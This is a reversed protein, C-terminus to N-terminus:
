CCPPMTPLKEAADDADDEDDDLFIAADSNGDRTSFVKLIAFCWCNEVEPLEMNKGEDVGSGGILLKGRFTRLGGGCCGEAVEGPNEGVM